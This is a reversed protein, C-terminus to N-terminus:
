TTASPSQEAIHNLGIRRLAKFLKRLDKFGELDEFLVVDARHSSRYYTTALELTEPLFWVHDGDIYDLYWAARSQYEYNTVAREKRLFGAPQVTDVVVEVELVRGKAGGFQEPYGARRFYEALAGAETRILELIRARREAKTMTRAREVPVSLLEALETAKRLAIKAELAELASM